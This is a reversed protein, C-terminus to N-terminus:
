PGGCNGLYLGGPGASDGTAPDFSKGSVGLRSSSGTQEYPAAGIQETAARDLLIEFMIKLLLAVVEEISQWTQCRLETPSSVKKQAVNKSRKEQQIM